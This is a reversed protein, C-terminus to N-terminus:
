VTNKLGLNLLVRCLAVGGGKHFLPVSAGLALLFRECVYGTGLPLGPEALRHGAGEDM